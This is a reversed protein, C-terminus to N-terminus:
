AGSFRVRMLIHRVKAAADLDYGQRAMGAAIADIGAWTDFRAPLVEIEGTAANM